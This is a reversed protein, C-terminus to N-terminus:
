EFERPQWWPFYDPMDTSPKMSFKPPRKELFSAVGEYADPGQGM